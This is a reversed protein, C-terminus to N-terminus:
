YQMFSSVRLICFSQKVSLNGIVKEREKVIIEKIWKNDRIMGDNREHENIVHYNKESNWPNEYEIAMFCDDPIELQILRSM